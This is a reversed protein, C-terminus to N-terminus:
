LAVVNLKGRLNRFELQLAKAALDMENAQLEMLQKRSKPPPIREMAEMKAPVPRVEGQGIIHDLYEVTPHLFKRKAVNVM